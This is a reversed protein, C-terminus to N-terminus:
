FIPLCDPFSLACTINRALHLKHVVTGIHFPAEASVNVNNSSVKYLLDEESTSGKGKARSKDDVLEKRKYITTYPL